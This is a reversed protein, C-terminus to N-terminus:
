PHLAPLAVQPDRATSEARRGPVAEGEDKAWASRSGISSVGDGGSGGSGSRCTGGGDCKIGVGGLTQASLSHLFLTEESLLSTGGQGVSGATRDVGGGVSGGGVLLFSAGNGNDQASILHISPRFFTLSNTEPARSSAKRLSWVVFLLELRLALLVLGTHTGSMVGSVKGGEDVGPVVVAGGGGVTPGLLRQRQVSASNTDALQQQYNCRRAGRVRGPTNGRKMGHLAPRRRNGRHTRPLFAVNSEPPPSNPLQKTCPTPVSLYVYCSTLDTVRTGRGSVNGTHLWRDHLHM